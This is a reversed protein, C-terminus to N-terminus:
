TCQKKQIQDFPQSTAIALNFAIYTSGDENSYTSVRTNGYTDCYRILICIRLIYRHSHYVDSHPLGMFPM